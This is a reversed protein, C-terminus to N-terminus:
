KQKIEPFDNELREWTAGPLLAAKTFEAARLPDTKVLAQAVDKIKQEYDTKKNMRDSEISSALVPFSSSFINLFVRLEEATQTFELLFLIAALEPIDIKALKYARLLESQVQKQLECYHADKAVVSM